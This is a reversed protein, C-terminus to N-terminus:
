KKINKKFQLSVKHIGKCQLMGNNYALLFEWKVVSYIIAAGNKASVNKSRCVSVTNRNFLTKCLKAM